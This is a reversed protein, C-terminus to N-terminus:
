SRRVRELNVFRTYEGQWGLHVTGLEGNRHKVIIVEAKRKEEETLETNYPEERYLMMVVDADQEISGSERLDSLIPRHDARAEVARSVQSLAIIPIDLEKALIKLGRSIESVEVQRSETRSNGSSMLQLYDIIILGINYKEKLMRCRSRVEHITANANDEIYLKSRGLLNSSEFIKMWEEDQLNGTRLVKSDVRADMALMRQVLQEKNMEFNFIAVPIDTHMIVYQAINLVFATKGIAPRAGVLILESGHMGTLINDLDIFGTPVGVVTGKVKAAERINRLVQNVVERIQVLEQGGTTRQAIDQLYNQIYDLMEGSPRKLSYCDKQVNELLEIIRRMNARDRIIEAYKVANEAYPMQLMIQQFVEVSYVAEPIGKEIMRERLPVMEVVIGQRNLEVINEFIIGYYGQYFDEAVLLDEVQSIVEKYTLMTALLSQEAEISNPKVNRVIEEEM